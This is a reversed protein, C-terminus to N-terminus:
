INDMLKRNLDHILSIEKKCKEISENILEEKLESLNNEQIKDGILIRIPFLHGLTEYLKGEDNNMFNSFSEPLDATFTIEAVPFNICIDSPRLSEDLRVDNDDSDLSSLNARSSHDSQDPQGESIHIYKTLDDQDAKLQELEDDINVDISFSLLNICSDFEECLEKFTDEINKEKIYKILSEMQSIESIFKKIRTITDFLNRLYSYNNSNFLEKRDEINRKLDRVALEAANVRKKLIKCTRKYHEAAEVVKDVEEFINSINEIVELPIRSNLDSHIYLDDDDDVKSKSKDDINNINPQPSQLDFSDETCLKSLIERVKEIDPRSEPNEDWCEQYLQQYKLPTGEIPDERDGKTIYHTILNRSSESFPPRGSSIEWLLVGLSYIDSKKNKKYKRDKFCQPDIYEDMGCHNGMSQTTTEALKKSLGLDAILLKRDNVLINKSHLDRHIIGKAHLFKLGSTIDLAMQIKDTWKLSTFNKKLYTRLNEENAYELVLIYNKPDKTIGLCRNIRPHYDVERLLELEKIIDDNVEDSEYQSKSIIIKLAVLLGTNALNARFVEGFSGKGIGVIEDFENYEFHRIYGNKIKEEFWGKVSTM